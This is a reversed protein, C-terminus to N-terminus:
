SFEVIKFSWACERSAYDHAEKYSNFALAEGDEPDILVNVYPLCGQVEVIFFM